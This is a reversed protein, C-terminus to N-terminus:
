FLNSLLYQVLIVCYNYSAHRTHIWSSAMKIAAHKWHQCNTNNHTLWISQSWTFWCGEWPVFTADALHQALPQLYIQEVWFFYNNLPQNFNSCESAIQGTLKAGLDQQRVEVFQLWASLFYLQGREPKAGVFIVTTNQLVVFPAFTSHSGYQCRFHLNEKEAWFGMSCCDPRVTPGFNNLAEWPQSLTLYPLLFKLM